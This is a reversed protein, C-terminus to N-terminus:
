LPRYGGALMKLYSERDNIIRYAEQLEPDHALGHKILGKDFYYRYIIERQLLRSIEERNRELDDQKLRQMTASVANIEEQLYTKYGEEEAAAMLETLREESATRYSFGERNLFEVFANWIQHTIDFSEPPAVSDHQTRYWTAFDFIQYSNMLARGIPSLDPRGTHIDPIIGKGDFVTRGNRTTFPTILSDPIPDTTGPLYEAQICRGSPIYYKAITVKLQSNYVLPVVNQVTGKGYSTKGIVIGRDLDQMAGAVIESASASQEDILIVVPMEMDMPSSFTRYVRNRDSIRGRTSAIVENQRVFLNAINVAELLLGGGNGRLDLILGNVDNESTLQVFSEKVDRGANQLFTRLSVYAIGERPMGSWPILQERINARELQRNLMEETYPRQLKVRVRTGTQGNLLYNVEEASRGEVSLGDVELLVDGVLLGENMASSNNNITIVVHRGQRLQVAFGASGAHTAQMMRYDEIDAEPIYETFPDLSLLMADIAVKTLKGPNIEEVYNTNLQRFLTAFIDLNKSIEFDNHIVSGLSVVAAIALGLLWYTGKKLRNKFFSKM